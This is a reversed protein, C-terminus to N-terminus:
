KKLLETWNVVLDIPTVTDGGDWANFLFRQGDKTPVYSSRTGLQTAPVRVDFLARVPGADFRDATATVDVAFLKNAGTFFLERSDARWRPNDGGETSIQWKGRGDPFTTVYIERRNTEDSVYALWRGDPSIMAPTNNRVQESFRWPKAEGSLPLVFLRGAAAGLPTSYLLYKGDTSVQMPIKETDDRLLLEGAESGSVAKRYIDAAEQRKSAYIVHRGDPTWVAGYGGSADLTFRKSLARVPDLLWVDTKASSPPSITVSVTKEDPAFQLDRYAAAEGIKGLRKGKRDFWVLETGSSTGTQYVLIGNESVSFTGTGTAPNSQVREAIPLPTGSLTRTDPDFPQAVLTTGLLFILHGSAYVANTPADILRKVETSDLSGVYVGTSAGGGTGATFLFHRGDPLFSPAILREGTERSPTLAAVSTGGAASVRAISNLGSFLIVGDRNWSGAPSLGADCLPIVPGGAAEVKKLKGDGVFAIWRGDPSWFPAAANATGELRRPVPSGLPRVWLMVRGNEDPAIFALHSGDPSLRLRLVPAGALPAPPMILSHIIRQDPAPRSRAFWAVAVLAVVAAAAVVWPVWGFRSRPPPVAAVVPTGTAMRADRLELRAAGIDPLRERRDKELCRRLLTRVPAPTGAPLASWDPDARVIAALTETVDEGDFPKRGTLMEFLVCGFAWIDVRKDVPRGKAQEPAMYAATGLVVGLQSMQFPSTITPSNEISPAAVARAEPAALAKALGFDLVKVTGDDRVKINAPKLDRHIIGQEHAAAVAEAIQMAIPIADDLPVAGDRAIRQSLDEGDVFEMVLHSGGEPPLDVVGYVQAVNPHNLAALTRAEREFRALREPDRAFLDPLVKIAVDRQLRTDRARYVEGMGGAGVPAVIEYPGIRSGLPLPM